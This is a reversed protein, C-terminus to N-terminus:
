GKLPRCHSKVAAESEPDKSLRTEVRRERAEESKEGEGWIRYKRSKLM